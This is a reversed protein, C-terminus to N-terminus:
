KKIIESAIQVASEFTYQGQEIKEAFVEALQRKILFAKGYAWEMCYADSFFGYQKNTPLMDLRTAMIDRMKTPFFNHWWYGAISLNPLERILTCIAHDQHANANYVCFNIKKYKDVHRALDFVSDSRFKSGGEFPLPEGGISYQFNFGPHTEELKDLYRNVIYNAYIDRERDGASERKALADIMEERTVDRFKIDTSFHSTMNDIEDYPTKEIYHDIADDVDDITKITKKFNLTSRDLTVPLPPGPIEQNWSYELEILATDYAGWQSRTFFSWELSYYFMDDHIHNRGRWLETNIKTLNAKDAIEKAREYGCGKARIVADCERWNDETLEEHWDYLDALITKAVWYLSTNKIYKLYPIARELRYHAEEITPDESLRAGDPCGASYLESIIMHYLIIDHLGRAAPHDACIHTHIDRTPLNWIAEFLKQKLETMYAEKYTKFVKIIM